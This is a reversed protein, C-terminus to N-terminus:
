MGKAKIEYLIQFFNAPKLNTEIMKDCEGYCDLIIKGTLQNYIIETINFDALDIPIYKFNVKKIICSLYEGNNGFSKVFQKSDNEDISELIIFRATGNTSALDYSTCGWNTKTEAEDEFVLNLKKKM